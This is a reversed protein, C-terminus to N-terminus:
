WEIVGSPAGPAVGDDVVDDAENMITFALEDVGSVGDITYSFRAQAAGSKLDDFAILHADVAVDIQAVAISIAHKQVAEFPMTKFEKDYLAVVVTYLGPEPWPADRAIGNWNFTPSFKSLVNFDLADYIPTTLDDDKFISLA